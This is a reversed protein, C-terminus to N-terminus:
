LSWESLSEGKLLNQRKEEELEIMHKHFLYRSWFETETLSSPVKQLPLALTLMALRSKCYRSVSLM